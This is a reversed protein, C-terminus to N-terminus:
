YDGCTCAERYQMPQMQSGINRYGTEVFKANFDDVGNYCAIATVLKLNPLLHFLAKMFDRYGHWCVANVCRTSHYWSTRQYDCEWHKGGRPGITTREILGLRFYVFRGRIPTRGEIIRVGTQAAATLICHKIHETALLSDPYTSQPLTARM